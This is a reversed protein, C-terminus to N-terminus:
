RGFAKVILLLELIFPVASLIVSVAKKRFFFRYSLYSNLGLLIPLAVIIYFLIDAIFKNAPNDYMFVSGLLLFPWLLLPTLGLVLLIIFWTPRKPNVNNNEM